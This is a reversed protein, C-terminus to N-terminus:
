QEDRLAKLEKLLDLARLWSPPVRCVNRPAREAAAAAKPPEKTPELQRALARLAVEWTEEAEGTAGPSPSQVGALQAASPPLPGWTRRNGPLRRLM